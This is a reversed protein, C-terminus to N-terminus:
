TVSEAATAGRVNIRIRLDASRWIWFGVRFWELACAGAVRMSRRWACCELEGWGMWIPLSKPAVRFFAPLAVNEM